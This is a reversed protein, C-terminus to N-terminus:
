PMYDQESLLTIRVPTSDVGTLKENNDTIEPHVPVVYYTYTHGYAADFDTVSIQAVNGSYEGVLVPEQENEEQRMVRYIIYDQKPTFSILPYGGGGHVVTLDDPPSPVNWYTSYRTPARDKPFYETIVQDDPTMSSALLPISNTELSLADLPVQVIGAPQTFIPALKDKYVSEFINKLVVAPYTGGTVSSDLCHTSDTSDFGMWCCMTYDPNYAVSWADKNGPINDAGSTGTKAAISVGDIQLRRATGSSVATQLISTMLFSTEESLVSVKTDPRSYVVKGTADEIKVICSPNSYYGGNAFPTFANCLSLPTVGKTFGGLALSLGTDEDEFPIGVNSAYLKGASIGLRDLVRVAPLNMSSVLAQRLTVWGEYNDSYNKPVYGDFDGKEDLVLTSPLYHLKEMAPAYVIVPKIASGPQRKMDIARNLGRRTEYTRGGVVARIESTQSDLICVASQCLTGDAASDPFLEGSEFLTEVTNQLDQDLTTYVKYGSSLLEESDMMLLEEAEALVLDTAYGYSSRVKESLVVPEAKAEDTIAESIFGQENMLSLVLNRRKISAQMDLHPAYNTPSKIVGALMAAQAVTLEGADKDFYVKAAAEIGYAGNGFYIYNLFMEMIEDKSYVQELKYAMVAEQLKRSMTQVGTLSTNKVLQQSITSAGQVIGGNKIDAIFAGIIRVFDVGCHEYFRTDEVAIFANIVYDPIDDIPVYVRNQMNYLAASEEGNRDYILLTQQMEGINEPDFDKWEKLGMLYSFFFIGCSFGIVLVSLVTYKFINFFLCRKRRPKEKHERHKGMGSKGRISTDELSLISDSNDYFINKRCLGYNLVFVLTKVSFVRLPYFICCFFVTIYICSLVM